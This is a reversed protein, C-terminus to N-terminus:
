AQFEFERSERCRARRFTKECNETCHVPATAPHSIGPQAPALCAAIRTPPSQGVFAVTKMFLFVPDFEPLFHIFEQLHVEVSTRIFVLSRPLRRKFREGSRM